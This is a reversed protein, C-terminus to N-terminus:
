LYRGYKLDLLLLYFAGSGGLNKLAKEILEALRNMDVPPPAQSEVEKGGLVTLIEDGSKDLL